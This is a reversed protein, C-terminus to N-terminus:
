WVCCSPPNSEMCLHIPVPYSSAKRKSIEQVRGKTNRGKASKLRHVKGTILWLESHLLKWHTILGLCSKSSSIFFQHKWITTSFFVKSLGKSQSSILGTLGLFDVKFVWQFSQHQLELVKAVRHLSSVWQSFNLAPPSPPHCFNLYNSLTMSEISM